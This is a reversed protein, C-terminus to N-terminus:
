GFEGYVATMREIPGAGAGVTALEPHPPTSALLEAAGAVTRDRLADVADTYNEEDGPALASSDDVSMISRPSLPVWGEGSIHLIPLLFTDGVELRPAGASRMPVEISGRRVWGSAGMDFVEPVARGDPRSWLIEQVALTVVRSVYVEGRAQEEPTRPVRQEATVEVVVVADAFSVWDQLGFSYFRDSGSIVSVSSSGENRDAVVFALAAAGVIVCGVIAVRLQWRGSLGPKGRAQDSRGAPFRGSQSVVGPLSQESRVAVDEQPRRASSM